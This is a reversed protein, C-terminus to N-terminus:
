LKAAETGWRSNCLVDPNPTRGQKIESICHAVVREWYQETLPVM